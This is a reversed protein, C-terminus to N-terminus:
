VNTAYSNAVSIFYIWAFLYIVVIVLLASGSLWDMSKLICKDEKFVCEYCIAIVMFFGFIVNVFTIWVFVQVIGEADALTAYLLLVGMLMFCVSMFTIGSNILSSLQSIAKKPDRINTINKLNEYNSETQQEIASLSIAGTIVSLLSIILLGIRLSFVLCCDHFEPFIECM